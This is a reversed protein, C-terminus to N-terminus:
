PNPVQRHRHPYCDACLNTTTRGDATTKARMKMAGNPQLANQFRTPVPPKTIRIAIHNPTLTGYRRNLNDFQPTIPTRPSSIESPTIPCPLNKNKVWWWVEEVNEKTATPSMRVETVLSKLDIRRKKKKHVWEHLPNLHDLPERHPINNQDLHRNAGAM